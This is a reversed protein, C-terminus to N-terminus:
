RVDVIRISLGNRFRVLMICSQFRCINSSDEVCNSILIRVVAEFPVEMLDM